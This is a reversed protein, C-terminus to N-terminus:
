RGIVWKLKTKNILLVLGFTLSYVIIFRLLTVGIMSFIPLNRIDPIHFPRLIEPLANFVIIYHILYIGFTTERPKFFKTFGFDKIKLLLGICVLSYLINSFRLTNYPDVSKMEYLNITELVSLAFTFVFLLIWVRYPIKSIWAQVAPWNKNLQAGLWLFFVFGFIATTHMPPFWTFYINVSYILTFLLLVAGLWISYLYKRFLLLTGICILFNIIFWYNSHFYVASFSTSVTEGLDFDAQKHNIIYFKYSMTFVFVLSWILWPVFTNSLRRKFYDLPTYKTFNSGILFGALLFFSITGLKAFQILCMYVINQASISPFIYIGVHTAHEFVICMMSICRISDIFDFNKKAPNLETSNTM